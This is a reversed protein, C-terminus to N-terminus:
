LGLDYIQIVGILSGNQVVLLSNVKKDKMVKEALIIRDEPKVSIPSKTMIDTAVLNFFDEQRSEMARRVDGDTIIGSLVGNQSIIVLGLRGLTIQHIIEKIGAEPNIMPLNERRMVDSVRTLLRRGLSGGPHFRAFNEEKFDRQEMLAVALADGMVLAVTTSSTPALQLPCAEKEVSINLHYDSNKAMTSGANGTMAIIKNRNEKLYPIIKLVEDTEGSNSILLMIDDSSVMGLDGHYAEAPHMFFSPTGTSALTAAIKQGILGSKGMGSVILKGRCNLILQIAHHFQEDLHNTVYQISEMEISFVRRAIDLSEPM